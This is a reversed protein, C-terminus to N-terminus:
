CPSGGSGSNCYYPAGGSNCEGRAGTGANCEAVTCAGPLCNAHGPLAGTDYCFSAATGGQCPGNGGEGSGTKCGTDGAGTPNCLGHAAQRNWSLDILKPPQYTFTKLECVHGSPLFSFSEPKKLGAPLDSRTGDFGALGGATLEDVFAGVHERAEEPVDHACSRVEKLLDDIAHEGDLLKWVFVGTPSLGFGRGTDPNFLIAWDDFEERLVVYPNAIPNKGKTLM